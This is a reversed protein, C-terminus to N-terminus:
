GQPGGDAPGGREPGSGDGRHRLEEEVADTNFTMFSRLSWWLLNFWAPAPLKGTVMVEALGAAAFVVPMLTRLDARNDMTARVEANIDAFAHAVSRAVRTPGPQLEPRGEALPRGSEDRAERLLSEIRARLSEADLTSESSEVLVSGTRPSVTVAECGRERALEEAVRVCASRRGSLAPARLRVRRDLAHVVCCVPQKM